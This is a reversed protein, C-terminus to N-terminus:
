HSFVDVDGPETELFDRNFIMLYAFYILQLLAAGPLAIMLIVGVGLILLTAPVPAQTRPNVRKMLAHAPFRDDRAM